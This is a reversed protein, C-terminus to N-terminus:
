WLVALGSTWLASWSTVPPADVIETDFCVTRRVAFMVSHSILSLQLIARTLWDRVKLEWLRLATFLTCNLPLLSTQNMSKPCLLLLLYIIRYLNWIRTIVATERSMHFPLKDRLERTSIWLKHPSGMPRCGCKVVKMFLPVRKGLQQLGGSM